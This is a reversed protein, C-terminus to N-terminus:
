GGQVVLRKVGHSLVFQGLLILAVTWAIQIPFFIFIEEPPIHGMYFRFPVDIVNRFPLVNLIPQCWDPFFPLPVYQGSLLWTASNLIIGVGQGSITWLLSITMLNTIASSLLIAGLTALMWACTSALNPPAQLGFFLGAVIFMPLARLLGPATRQAVARSYWFFYLNLPRVLEYVVNGSRVMGAVDGDANFPLLMLLAQGLWIYTVIQEFTMPQVATSSRYFADFIMIRIFGWFLQTGFGAIAAARYQLLTRFRAGFVSGYAKLTLIM